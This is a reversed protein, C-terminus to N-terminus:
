PKYHAFAADFGVVEECEMSFCCGKILADTEYLSKLMDYDEVFNMLGDMFDQQPQTLKPDHQLNVAIASGLLLFLLISHIM